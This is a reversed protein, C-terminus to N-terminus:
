YPDGFLGHIGLWNVWPLSELGLLKLLCNTREFVYFDHLDIWLTGACPLIDLHLAGRIRIAEGGVAKGVGSSDPSLTPHSCRTKGGKKRRMNKKSRGEWDSGGMGIGSQKSGGSKGTQGAKKVFHGVLM